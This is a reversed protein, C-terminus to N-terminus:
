ANITYYEDCKECLRPYERLVHADYDLAGREWIEVLSEGPTKGYVMENDLDQQCRVVRGDSLIVLDRELHRCPVRELPQLDAVSRDPERGAFSNYKQILPKVGDIGSWYRFFEQLEWENERMRTAQAYVRGPLAAGMRHVFEVAEHFGHGRVHEYTDERAADLEVIVAAPHPGSVGAEVLAAVHEEPWGVGSTEVYFRIQDYREMIRVIQPLNRHLGPEGRYGLAVVAEPSLAKLEEMIDAFLAPAMEERSTDRWPTYSPYQSFSSTIQMRCYRPVTRLIPPNRLLEQLIPEQDDRFREAYPDPVHPSEAAARSGPRDQFTIVGREVMRRCLIYNAKTDATLGARLLAYDETAAETEIDFANIDISLADFVTTRSWSIDRDAALRALIGLIDRRIVQSGYGQPFGDGFTYDSWSRRHLQDLYRTLALSLFPGDGDVWLLHEVEAAVARDIQDLADGAAHSELIITHANAAPNGKGIAAAEEPSTGRPLVVTVSSVPLLAVRSWLYDLPSYGDNFATLLWPSRNPFAVICHDMRCLTDVPRSRTM